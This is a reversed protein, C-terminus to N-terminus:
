TLKQGSNSSSSVSILTLIHPLSHNKNFSFGIQVEREREKDRERERQRLHSSLVTTLSIIHVSLARDRVRMMGEISEFLVLFFGVVIVKQKRNMFERRYMERESERKSERREREWERDFVIFFSYFYTYLKLWPIFSFLILPLFIYHSKRRSVKISKM